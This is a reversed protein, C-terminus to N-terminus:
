KLKVIVLHSSHSNMLRLAIMAFPREPTRRCEEVVVQM